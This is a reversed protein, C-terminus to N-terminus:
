QEDQYYNQNDSYYQSYDQQQDQSYHGETYTDQITAQESYDLNQYYHDLQPQQYFEKRFGFISEVLLPAASFDNLDLLESALQNKFTLEFEDLFRLVLERLIPKEDNILLIANGFSGMAVILRKEGFEIVQTQKEAITEGTIEGLIGVIGTLAGGFLQEDEFLDKSYPVYTLTLGTKTVYAVAELCKQWGKNIRKKKTAVALVSSLIIALLLGGTSPLVITYLNEKLWTMFPNVNGNNGPTTSKLELPYATTIITNGASDTVAFTLTFNGEGLASLNLTLQYVYIGALEQILQMQFTENIGEGAVNLEIAAIGYNDQASISINIYNDTMNTSLEIQNSTGSLVRDGIIISGFVAPDVQDIIVEIISNRGRDATDYVTITLNHFDSPVVFNDETVNIELLYPENLIDGVFSQYYVVIQGDAIVQIEKVGLRPDDISLNLQFNPNNTIYTQPLNVSFEPAQPYLVVTIIARQTNNAADFAEVTINHHGDGFGSVDFYQATTLDSFTGVLTTNIWVNFGEVGSGDDFASWEIYLNDELILELNSPNLIAVSPALQDVWIYRMDVFQFNSGILVAVTVNFVQFDSLPIAGLDVIASYTTNSYTGYLSGNVFVYFQDLYINKVNWSVNVTTTSSYSSFELPQLIAFSPALTNHQVSISQATSRGMYDIVEIRITSSTNVPITFEYFNSSPDTLTDIQVNNLFIAYEKIGTGNDSADWFVPVTESSTIFGDEPSTITLAPALTDLAVTYYDIAYNGAKDWAIVLIENFGETSLIITDNLITKDYFSYFVDNIELEFYSIGSGGINDESSWQVFISPSDTYYWDDQQPLALPELSITPNVTDRTITISSSSNHGVADSAVIRIQYQKDFPLDVTTSTSDTIDISEDDLYIQFVDVWSWTDYSDWELTISPTKVASGDIPSIIELYPPSNDYIIFITDKGINNSTDKGIITINYYGEGLDLSLLLTTSTEDSKQLSDNVYADFVVPDGEPDYVDFSVEVSDTDVIEDWQPNTITVEPASQSYEIEIIDYAVYGLVDYAYIEIDNTGLLLNVYAGLQGGGARVQFAGNVFLGFFEMPNSDNSISWKILISEKNSIYGWSPSTITVSPYNGQGLVIIQGYYDGIIAEMRGDEDIDYGIISNKVGPAAGLDGSWEETYVLDKGYPTGNLNTIQLIKVTGNSCGFILENYADGDIDFVAAGGAFNPSTGNNLSFELPIETDNFTFQGFIKLSNRGVLITEIEGDNDVDAVVITHGFYDLTNNHSGWPLDDEPSYITSNTPNDYYSTGDMELIQLMTPSISDSDNVQSFFIVENWEDGDMDQIDLAHIRSVETRNIKYPTIYGALTFKDPAKSYTLVGILGTEDGFLIQKSSDNKNMADGIAIYGLLKDGYNDFIIDASDFDKTVNNWGSLRGIRSDSGVGFLEDKGDGDFDYAAIKTIQFLTGYHASEWSGWIRTLEGNIYDYIAILKDDGSVKRNSCVVLEQDGDGNIDALTLFTNNNKGVAGDKINFNDEIIYEEFFHQDGLHLDGWQGPDKVFDSVLSPVLPWSIYDALTAFNTTALFSIGILQDNVPTEYPVKFEYQRHASANNFDSRQFDTDVIIGSSALPVGPGAEEVFTWTKTIINYSYLDVKEVGSSYSYRIRYDASSLWGNHDLDLYIVAGFSSSPIETTFDTCDLAAYVTDNDNQLLLKGSARGKEDYLNYVAASTWEQSLDYLKFNISGDVTPATENWISFIEIPTAIPAHGQVRSFQFQRMAFFSTITFLVLVILLKIQKKIQISNM